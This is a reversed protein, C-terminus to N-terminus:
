NITPINKVLPRPQSLLAKREARYRVADELTVGESTYGAKEWISIGDVKFVIDYCQDRTGDPLIRRACTRLYVGEYETKVRYQKSM